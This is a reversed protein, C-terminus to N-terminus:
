RGLLLHPFLLGVCAILIMFAAPLLTLAVSFVLGLTFAISAFKTGDERWPWRVILEVIWGATFALNAMVGYGVIRMALIIPPDPMQAPEGLFQELAILALLCLGCTVVGTAGVVLNFAIRRREWWGISEWVPLAGSRSFFPLEVIARLRATLRPLM